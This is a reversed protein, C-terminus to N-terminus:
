TLLGRIDAASLADSFTGDDDLVAGFLKAKREKLAMVKDEITETAVLRTVMVPKTQGIRHTRDIAQNETAPNWWPDLLFVYDAETLNLGFGGAKLSILFVPATGQKFGDIVKARGTTSGDLYSYAIGAADMREAAKRLYTTFQSFVLARHGGGVVDELQEFLVDLKSSPVGAYKPDVISADLAMRRLVTLARFIEFRNSKYDELLGLLRRRERNLFTDYVRRHRPALDVNVLQETREPLEPAVQEKTRRMLLPRIRRRLRTLTPRESEGAEAAIPTAYDQKFRTRGGLMGPAVIAFIAWLEDLSNEMPTGTIALKFGTRLHRACENAKTAYNKAFQAEDLILGDWQREAFEAFDLRFLAYSTVVIDAGEVAESLPVGHKSRTETLARAVLGPAFRKTEAVWNSVVSSPAVVLFPPRREGTAAAKSPGADDAFSLSRTHTVSNAAVRGRQRGADDAFSLNRTHTVLALAEVTKGLGMDDALIGGIGHRWLFVLWEFGRQQYPRLTALLGGPPALPAPTEGAEALARLTSLSERWAADAETADALDELEGWLSADYRSVRPQSPKDSLRAAEEILARLQDFVPQDLRIFTDDALMLVREGRALASFLAEFPIEMGEVQVTVGLDLWDLDDSPSASVTLHPAETRERPVPLDGVVDVRVGPIERLEPLFGTVLRLLDLGSVLSRPAAAPDALGPWRDTVKAVEVLITREAGFDREPRGRVADIPFTRRAKGKGYSWSWDVQVMSGQSAAEVHAVLTPRDPEPLAVSGNSSIVEGLKMLRKLYDRRFERLDAAPVEVQDSGIVGSVDALGARSPPGLVLREGAPGDMVAAYGVPGLSAVMRASAARGDLRVKRALRAGGDDTATVDLVPDLGDVVAVPSNNESWVLAIDLEQAQRLLTWLLPSDFRTLQVWLGRQYPDSRVRDLDAFWHVQQVSFGAPCRVRNVSGWSLSNEGVWARAKGRRVARIEVFAATSVHRYYPTASPETVRFQLGVPV